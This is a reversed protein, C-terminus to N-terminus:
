ASGSRNKFESAAGDNRKGHPASKGKILADNFADSVPQSDAIKEVEAAAKTWIPTRPFGCLGFELRRILFDIDAMVHGNITPLGNAEVTINLRALLLKISSMESRLRRCHFSVESESAPRVLVDGSIGGGIAPIESITWPNYQGLFQSEQSSGQFWVLSKDAEIKDFPLEALGAIGWQTPSIEIFNIADRYIDYWGGEEPVM